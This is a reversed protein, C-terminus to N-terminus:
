YNVFTFVSNYQLQFAILKEFLSFSPSPTAFRIPCPRRTRNAPMKPGGKASQKGSRVAVVIDSRTKAPNRSVQRGIRLQLATRRGPRDARPIQRGPLRDIGVYGPFGASRLVDAIM